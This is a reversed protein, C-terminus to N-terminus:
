SLALLPAPNVANAVSAAGRDVEFHLHPGTSYGTSGELGVLDGAHIVAKDAVTVVQLHGYRVFYRQQARDGPLQMQVEVVVNNGFGGGVASGPAWGSTVHAIGDTLTHIPMGAPCALDVGTHFHAHGFVAPEGSLSTPGFGQSVAPRCAGAFPDGPRAMAILVTSTPDAAYKTAWGLVEDVYWWAHNYQWVAQRLREATGAGNSCLYHAAAFAADRVEYVDDMAPLHFANWTAQLFQMPGMAGAHNAGSHVGALTSRAHDTEVKGVGALVTWSLGPCTQAADQYDRLVAAPVDGLAFSSAPAPTQSGTGLSVLMATMAVFPLTVAALVAAAIGVPVKV